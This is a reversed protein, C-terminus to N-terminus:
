DFPGSGDGYEAVAQAWATELEQQAGALAGVANGILAMRVQPWYNMLMFGAQAAAGPSLRQDADQIIPAGLVGSPDNGGIVPNTNVKLVEVLADSAAKMAASKAALVAVTDSLAM